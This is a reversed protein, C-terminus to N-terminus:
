NELKDKKLENILNFRRVIVVVIMVLAIARLVTDMKHTTLKAKAQELAFLLAGAVSAVVWATAAVVSLAAAADMVIVPMTFDM